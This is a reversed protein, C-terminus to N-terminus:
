RDSPKRMLSTRPPSPRHPCAPATTSTPQRFFEAMVYRVYRPTKVEPASVVVEDHDIKASAPVFKHDDGAIEFGTLAGGKAVLGSSHDFWVRMGTGEAAAQRFLPGSDEIHEGYAIDRAALALRHGVTQKDPPHVNDAEGIDLTVAMGTNTLSLTRRQADRVIGWKEHESSTFSSIQVFLFPFDGEHWRGRWDSILTPFVKSYMPARAIGTNAEGQYWIM